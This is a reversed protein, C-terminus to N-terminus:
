RVLSLDCSLDQTVLIFGQDGLLLIPLCWVMWCLTTGGSHRFPYPVDYHHLCCMVPYYTFGNKRSGAFRRGHLKEAKHMFCTNCLLLHPCSSNSRGIFHWRIYGVHISSFGTLPCREVKRPLSVKTLKPQHLSDVGELIHHVISYVAFRYGSSAKTM